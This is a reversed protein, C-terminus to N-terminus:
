VTSREVLRGCEVLMRSQLLAPVKNDLAEIAAWLDRVGFIERSVVYARAIENPLMGTKERVEHVFNIGVRNVLDNTVVTTIIERRLRHEAIQVAYKTRLPRPFYDSLGTMFYPDDPLDSALLDDYLVIKSYSLLVAIEPRTLGIGQKIRELVIEDDPLFEIQRNLKGDKELARMFRGFRDLLHAGLQNTVTIAQSQLYNDRLCHEAVEDTMKGLLLDRQKRTMGGAQEVTGLLIKINVEHDSCDVGASNDISDTNCAGGNLSYEVRGRQTMGLNAGEGVVKARLQRGNIRIADNARDGADLDSESSAKVYTGIGGFWLLEIDSLLMAKILENPTVQEQEIGFLSRMQPTTRISKASREFIGGGKSILGAAYDTWSSRPLDFLRKREAWSAAPDPDPDVFIHMHNFAGVLRIHKSLLMGNGFVDGSMDGCGLCTFDENQIDKGRERFHRKVSEWAGRATIGMKKHDYGASGGSAFADDLWHGYAVSVGNAIDSFTATGKDAAVVLYPDDSDYRVVEQPPVLDGLKLNDTIDLLGCIFTKYCEIGSALFADRGADPPPPMKVVFGGKSGVPVIVANKVQQAKVLGLIETRFDERRDSWRLGGRAVMGFRLHVGEVQPSYVFIERFPRPLPLEDVSRSDLKFSCYSKEEDTETRQYFNTRLTCDVINLYRRIIRDEDLNAVGELKELIAARLASAQAERDGTLAPDFRSEFLQVLLATIDANRALTEEMYAQSFPIRAQRLYKCYARLVIVQRSTLGSHLVLRNFGDNEMRGHWVRRFAEHFHDRVLTLDIDRSGEVEIYFDHVWVVEPVDMPTIRYPVERLVKLGMNELMPLIDSLPVPDGTVYIKFNLQHAASDPRRHLNMTLDGSDIASEILAIDNVAVTQDFQEQYGAPFAREFRRLARIGKEEGRAAILSD